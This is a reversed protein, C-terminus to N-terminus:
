ALKQIVARNYNGVQTLKINKVSLRLSLTKKKQALIHLVMVSLDRHKFAALINVKKDRGVFMSKTVSALLVDTVYSLKKVNIIIIIFKTASNCIQKRYLDVKKCSM